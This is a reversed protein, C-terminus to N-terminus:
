GNGDARFQTARRPNLCTRSACHEAGHSAIEILPDSRLKEIMRWFLAHRLFFPRTIPATIPVSLGAEIRSYAQRKAAANSVDIEQGDVV